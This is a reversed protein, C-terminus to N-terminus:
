GFRMKTFTYQMQIVEVGNIRLRIYNQGQFQMLNKYIHMGDVIQTFLTFEMTM